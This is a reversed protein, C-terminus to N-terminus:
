AGPQRRFWAAGPSLFLLYCAALELMAVLGDAAAAWPAQELTEAFEGVTVVWSLALLLLLLWRAVDNRRGALYILVGYAVAFVGVLAVGGYLVVQAAQLDDDDIDGWWEGRIVPLMSLLGIVLTVWLIRCALTVQPPRGALDDEEGQDEVRAGPPKYPDLAM